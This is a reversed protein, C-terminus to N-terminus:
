ATEVNLITAGFRLEEAREPHLALEWLAKSDARPIAVAGKRLM